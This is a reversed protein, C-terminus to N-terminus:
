ALGIRSRAPALSPNSLRNPSLPHHDPPIIGRIAVLAQPDLSQTRPSRRCIAGRFGLLDPKLELLPAVDGAFGAASLTPLPELDIGQDAFLVAALEIGDRGLQGLASLTGYLDGDQFPGVKVYDVRTAAKRETPVTPWERRGTLCGAIVRVDDTCNVAAFGERLLNDLTAAPRFPAVLLGQPHDHIGTPAIHM